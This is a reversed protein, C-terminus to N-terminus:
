RVFGNVNQTWVGLRRRETHSTVQVTLTNRTCIHILDDSLLFRFSIFVAAAGSTAPTYARDHEQSSQHDEELVLEGDQM